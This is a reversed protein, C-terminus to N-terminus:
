AVFLVQDDDHNLVGKVESKLEELKLDTLRSEFVSYQLRHGYGEMIKAIRRLRKANSIDYSVLYVQQTTTM